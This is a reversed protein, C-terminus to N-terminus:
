ETVEAWYGGLKFEVGKNITRKGTERYATKPLVRFDFSVRTRGTDNSVSGHELCAGHFKLVEGVSMRVPHFDRKGVASELWVSNTGYMSTLPVLYNLEAEDHNYDADRHFGGTAVNGPLHVRFTPIKQYLFDPAADGLVFRVLRDYEGFFEEGIGYFHKHAPTQQDKGVQLREIPERFAKHLTELEHGFHDGVLRSLVACIGGVKLIETQYNM